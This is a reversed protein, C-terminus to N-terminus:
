RKRIKEGDLTEQVNRRNGVNGPRKRNLTEQVNGPELRKRFTEQELSPGFTEQINGTELVCLRKKVNGPKKRDLLNPKRSRKRRVNGSRKRNLLKRLTEQKAQM